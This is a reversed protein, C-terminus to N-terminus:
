LRHWAEWTWRGRSGDDRTALVYFHANDTRSWIKLRTIQTTDLIVLLSQLHPRRAALECPSWGAVDMLGTALMWEPLDLVKLNPFCGLFRFLSELTNPSELFSMPAPERDVVETSEAESPAALLLTTITSLVINSSWGQLWMFDSGDHLELQVLPLQGLLRFIRPTIEPSDPFFVEYDLILKKVAFPSEKDPSTECWSAELNDLIESTWLPELIEPGDDWISVWESYHVARAFFKAAAPGGGSFECHSLVGQRETELQHAALVDGSIEVQSLYPLDHLLSFTNDAFTYIPMGDGLTLAKLPLKRLCNTIALPISNSLDPPSGAVVVEYSLFALNVALTLAFSAFLTGANTDTTGMSMGVIRAWLEPSETLKAIRWKAFPDELASDISMWKWLPREAVSRLRQNVQALRFLDRIDCFYLAEGFTDKGTTTAEGIMHLIDDPLDLLTTPM